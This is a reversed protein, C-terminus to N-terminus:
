LSYRGAGIGFLGSLPRQLSRRVARGHAIATRRSATGEGAAAIGAITCERIIAREFEAMAAIVHFIMRGGASNTDINESISHFGIQRDQLKTILGIL